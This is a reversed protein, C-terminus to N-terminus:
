LSKGQGAAIGEPSFGNPLPIQDPGKGAVAVAALVMVSASVPGLVALLRRM